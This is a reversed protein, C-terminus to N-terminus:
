KNPAKAQDPVTVPCGDGEISEDENGSESNTPPEM